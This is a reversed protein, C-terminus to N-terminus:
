GSYRLYHGYAEEGYPTIRKVNANYRAFVLKLEEPTYGGFDIRGTMEEACSLLNLAAFEMNAAPDKHIKLWVMRVDAPNKPDLRRQQVTSGTLDAKATDTSDDAEGTRKVSANQDAKKSDASDHLKAGSSTGLGLSAYSALGRDVAFNAANLAVYGFIQAYGTSSDKRSFAGLRVVLDAAVDMLDIRIMETYLVAKLVAPPMGYKGCIERIKPEYREIISEARAPSILHLMLVGHKM